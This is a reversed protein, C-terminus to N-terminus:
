LQNMTRLKYTLAITKADAIRHEDCMQILTDLPIEVQTIEENEDFNTGVYELDKAYYLYTIENSYGPSTYIFGLDIIEKARYGTEEELERLATLIPDENPEILGAPFEILDKEVGFRFQKVLLCNGEDNIAAVCVGGPHEVQEIRLLKDQTQFTSEYADIIIGDFKISRNLKKM